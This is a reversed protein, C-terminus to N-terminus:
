RPIRVCVDTESQSLFENLDKTGEFTKDKFDINIDGMIVIDKHIYDMKELCEELYELFFTM